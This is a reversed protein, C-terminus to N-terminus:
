AGYASAMSRSALGRRGPPGERETRTQLQPHACVWLCVGLAKIEMSFLTKGM